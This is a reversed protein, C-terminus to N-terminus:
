RTIRARSRFRRSWTNCRTRSSISSDTVDQSRTSGSWTSTGSNPISRGGDLKPAIAHLATSKGAAVTGAIVVYGDAIIRAQRTPRGSPRGDTSAADVREISAIVAFRAAVPRPTGDGSLSPDRNWGRDHLQSRGACRRGYLAGRILHAGFDAVVLRGGPRVARALQRVLTARNLAGAISSLVGVVYVIDYRGAVLSPRIPDGCWFTEFREDARTSRLIERSADCGELRRVGAAFLHRLLRGSGCGFDLIRASSDAPLPLTALPFTSRLQPNRGWMEVNRQTIAAEATSIVIRRFREWDETAALLDERLYAGITSLSPTGRQAASEIANAVEGM